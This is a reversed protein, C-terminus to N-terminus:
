NLLMSSAHKDNISGYMMREERYRGDDKFEEEIKETADGFIMTTPRLPEEQKM